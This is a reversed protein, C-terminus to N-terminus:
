EPMAELLSALKVVPPEKSTDTKSHDPIVVIYGDEDDAKRKKLRDLVPGLISSRQDTAFVPVVRILEGDGDGERSSLWDRRTKLKEAAEVDWGDSELEKRVMNAFVSARIGAVLDNASSLLAKVDESGARKLDQDTWTMIHTATRAQERSLLKDHKLSGVNVFNSEGSIQEDGVKGLLHKAIYALKYELKIRLGVLTDEFDGEDDETGVSQAAAEKAEAASFKFPGAEALRGVLDRVDQPRVAALLAVAMVLGLAVLAQDPELDGFVVAIGLAILALSLLLQLCTWLWGTSHPPQQKRKTSM